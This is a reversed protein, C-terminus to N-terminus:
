VIQLVQLLTWGIAASSSRCIQWLGMGLEEVEENDSKFGFAAFNFM